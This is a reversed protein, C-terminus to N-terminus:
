VWFRLTLNWLVTRSLRGVYFRRNRTKKVISEKSACIQLLVDKRKKLLNLAMGSLWDIIKVRGPIKLKYNIINNNSLQAM